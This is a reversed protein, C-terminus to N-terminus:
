TLHMMIMGTVIHLRAALTPARYICPPYPPQKPGPMCSDLANVCSDQMPHAGFLLVCYGIQVALRGQDMAPRQQGVPDRARPM